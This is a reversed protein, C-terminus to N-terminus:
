FLNSRAPFSSVHANREQGSRGLAKYLRKARGRPSEMSVAQRCLEISDHKVDAIGGVIKRPNQMSVPYITSRLFILIRDGQKLCFDM